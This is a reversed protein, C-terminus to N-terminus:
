PPSSKLFVPYEMSGFAFSFSIASASALTFNVQLTAVDHGSSFNTVNALGYSTFEPTSGLNFNTDRYSGPLPTATDVANGTSMVVGNGLTLVSGGFGTYTGFQAADGTLATASDITLGAGGLAASLDSSSTTQTVSISAAAPTAAFAFALSVSATLASVVPSFKRSIRM